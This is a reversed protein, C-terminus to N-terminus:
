LLRVRQVVANASPRSGQCNVTGNDFVNVIQGAAARAGTLNVRLMALQLRELLDPFISAEYGDVAWKIV